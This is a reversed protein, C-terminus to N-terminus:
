DEDLAIEAIDMVPEILEAVQELLRLRNRRLQGDDVMVVVNDLFEDVPTKLDAIALLAPFYKESSYYEKVEAAAQKYKNWLNKEEQDKLLDPSFEEAPEGQSALNQCRQLGYMLALFDQHDRERLQMVAQCRASIDDLDFSNKALVANIVDYRIGEDALYNRLRQQLFDLVRERVESAAGIERQLQQFLDKLNLDLDKKIIMRIIATAKRRLAFPDQSGSPINGVFFNSMIDDAKDSISLILGPKSQPLEDQSGSPLYQEAIAQAVAESEGALRAYEGGMFGQLSAFERVMETALDFKALGAARIAQKKVEEDQSVAPSIVRAINKLRDVKDALSGLEEQYVIDTLRDNFEELSKKQDERYFFVADALRARIVMENGNVVENLHPDDGNRVGVFKNILSGSKELPFYRQHKIMSTTLVEDPLSLFDQSFEGQFATPYEVLNVVEQLLGEPRVAEVEPPLLEDLQALIRSRREENKVLVKEGALQKFYRGASPIELREAGLFRHGRTVRGSELGALEFDIVKDDLLALLWRIPRVFRYDKDGWRMKQPQPLSNIIEPLLSELVEGTKKGEITREAFLYGDRIVVEDLSINQGRAFGEGARTPNGRDDFAIEEAPGRVSEEKDSQSEALGRGHLVLRRPTSYSTFEAFEIRAESFKERALRTLNKRLGAIMGAPIEETGIELILEASM